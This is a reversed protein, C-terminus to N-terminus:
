PPVIKAPLIHRLEVASLQGMDAVSPDAKHKLLEVQQRAFGHEAIDLYRQHICAHAAAIPSSDGHIRKGPHAQAVPHVMARRLYGTPM